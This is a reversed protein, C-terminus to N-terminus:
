ATALRGRMTAHLCEMANRLADDESRGLVFDESFSYNGFSDTTYGMKACRRELSCLWTLYQTQVSDSAVMYGWSRGNTIYRCNCNYTNGVHHISLVDINLM